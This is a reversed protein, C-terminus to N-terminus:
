TLAAETTRAGVFWAPVLKTDADTCVWLWVDGAQGTRVLHPKANKQQAGVFGWVEDVQVRKCPLNYFVRNQYWDAAQGADTLITVTTNSVGTTIARISSGGRRGTCNGRSLHLV